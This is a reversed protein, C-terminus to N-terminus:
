PQIWDTHSLNYGRYFGRLGDRSMVDGIASGFTAKKGQESQLQITVKIMDVPQVVCTALMGSLGGIWFPQITDLFKAMGSKETTLSTM